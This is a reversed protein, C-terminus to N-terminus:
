SQKYAVAFIVFPSSSFFIKRLFCVHIGSSDPNDYKKIEIPKINVLRFYPTVLLLKEIIFKSRYIFLNIRIGLHLNSPYLNKQCFMISVELVTFFSSNLSVFVFRTANSVYKIKFNKNQRKFSILNSVYFM